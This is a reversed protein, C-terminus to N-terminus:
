RISCKPPTPREWSRAPTRVRDPMKGPDLAACVTGFHTGFWLKYIM